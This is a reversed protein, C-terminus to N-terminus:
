RLPDRGFAEIRRDARTQHVILKLWENRISGVKRKRSFNKTAKLESNFLAGATWFPLLMKILLKLKLIMAIFLSGLSM